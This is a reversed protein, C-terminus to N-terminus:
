DRESLVKPCKEIPKQSELTAEEGDERGDGEAKGSGIESGRV